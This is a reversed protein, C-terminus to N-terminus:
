ARSGPDVAWRELLCAAFRQEAVIACGAGFAVDPALAPEATALAAAMDLAMTEHEADALVHVDYFRRAEPSGGLRALARSYRGMPEVSTMEFVALHGVLAGRWRRHLGFMSIVNSIALASAPLVDLYAHPRPDLGMAHMTRAFLEAHMTRDTADAGYEGAQIRALLQKPRGALRPIGFTHGDAEKLQYASRHVVFDRMQDWTGRGEMFRSLSPGDDAAIMAPIAARAPRPDITPAVLEGLGGEFASELQQRFRLLESDWEPDGVVGPLDSFHPEYSCYLALQLDDDFPDLAGVSPRASPRSRGALRDLVFASLDGRPTPPGIPERLPAIPVVDGPARAALDGRERTPAHIALM